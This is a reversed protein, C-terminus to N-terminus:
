FVCHVRSSRSFYCQRPSFVCHFSSTGSSNQSQWQIAVPIHARAKELPLVPKINYWYNFCVSCYFLFCKLVKFFDNYALYYLIYYFTMNMLCSSVLVPTDQADYYLM